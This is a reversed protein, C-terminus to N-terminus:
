PRYWNYPDKTVHGCKVCRASCELIQADRLVEHGPYTRDMEFWKTARCRDCFTQILRSRDADRAYKPLEGRYETSRDLPQEVLLQETYQYREEYWRRAEEIPSQDPFVSGARVRREDEQARVVSENWGRDDTIPGIMNFQKRDEDRIFLYFPKKM